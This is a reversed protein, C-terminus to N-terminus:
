QVDKQHVFSAMASLSAVARAQARHPRYFTALQPVKRTDLSQLPLTPPAVRPQAELPDLVSCASPCPAPERERQM